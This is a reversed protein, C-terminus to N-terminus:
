RAIEVKAQITELEARNLGYRLFCGLAAVTLIVGMIISVVALGDIVGQAVQSPDTQKPFQIALLSLSAILTGFIFTLKQAFSFAASLVGEQRKGTRLEMVDVLDALMSNAIVLVGFLGTFALANLGAVLILLADSGLAPAIGLLYLCYPLAGAMFYLLAFVCIAPKKDLWKSLAASLIVAPILMLMPALAVFFKQVQTFKWLYGGHYFSLASSAGYLILVLCYGACLWLFPRITAAIKIQAFTQTWHTRTDNEYRRLSPIKHKTGFAAILAGLGGIITMTMVFPGYGARNMMGDEFEPTEPLFVLLGIIFVSLAFFNNFFERMSMISTREDYDTSLEAGLSLYPVGYVTLGIRVILLFGLMWLFLGTQGLGLPPTFLFYLAVMTPVIGWLMYQHRRGWRESRSNDSIQGMVPDTVADIILAIMTAAVISLESVGMVNAFFYLFFFHFLMNKVSLLSVGMGYASKVGFSVQKVM